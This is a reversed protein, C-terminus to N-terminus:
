TTKRPSEARCQSQFEPICCKRCAGEPVGHQARSYLSDLMAKAGTFGSTQRKESLSRSIRKWARAYPKPTMYHRLATHNRVIGSIREFNGPIGIGGPDNAPPHSREFFMTINGGDGSVAHSTERLGAKGALARLTVANLYYLHAEHFTSRPFQCTAEVNPVEVVLTSGPRLAAHLRTLVAAPDELHELVHWITIMDFTDIPLPAEQVFGLHIALGYEQLAYAAYGRNPEIGHADHGLLKLLYLFEGGGSGVDLITKPRSLFRSIYDFRSLAVKGARLVHKPKPHSTGKYTVRYKDEYFPRPAHPRPDSWVLGCAKCIVTRQPKGSRSRNSLVAIDTGGCLNCPISCPPHSTM